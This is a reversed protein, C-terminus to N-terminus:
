NMRCIHESWKLRGLKTHTVVNIDEYSGYIENNHDIRRQANEQVGGYLKQLIKLEFTELTTEVRESM